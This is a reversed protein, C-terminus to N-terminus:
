WLAVAACFPAGTTTGLEHPGCGCSRSAPATTGARALEEQGASRRRPQMALWRTVCSTAGAQAASARVPRSRPRRRRRRSRRSRARRRRCSRAVQRAEFQPRRTPAVSIPCLSARRLRAVLEPDIELARRVNSRSTTVGASGASRPPGALSRPCASANQYAAAAVDSFGLRYARALDGWAQGQKEVRADSAGGAASSSEVLARLEAIQARLQASVSALDPHAVEVLSAPQAGASALAGRQERDRCSAFAVALLAVAIALRRM